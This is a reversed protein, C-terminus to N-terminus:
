SNRLRLRVNRTFSQESKEFMRELLLTVLKRTMNNLILNKLTPWLAGRFNDLEPNSQNSEPSPDAWSLHRRWLTKLSDHIFCGHIATMRVSFGEM